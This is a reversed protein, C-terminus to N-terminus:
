PERIAQPPTPPPTAHLQEDPGVVWKKLLSVFKPKGHEYSEVNWHFSDTPHSVFHFAPNPVEQAVRWGVSDWSFKSAFIVIDPALAAIVKTLVTISELIDKEVCCHKFSGGSDHAPRLFTNTYCIHSVPRDQSRLDFEGLCRNIERYMKHGPSGWECELLGRCNIYLLEEDNLTAQNTAYWRNADKHCTSEEPFYFSEGLILLKSHQPSVYDVGVFPLMVPFAKYHPIANLSHDFARSSPNM